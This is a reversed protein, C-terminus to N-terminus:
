SEVELHKLKDFVMLAQTYAEVGDLTSDKISQLPFYLSGLRYQFETVDWSPTVFSDLDINAGNFLSVAWAINAQTVAKRIQTNISTASNVADIATFVRKFAYALGGAASQENITKQVDDTMTISDTMIALNSITYGTITASGAAVTSLLAVRFDEFVIELQLGSMIQPPVKLGRKIPSFFPAIRKLPIVYRKPTGSLDTVASGWGEIPGQRTLYANTNTYATNFASWVNANDLRDIEIGSRSKITISKIVNMASASGWGATPTGSSAKLGVSFTLYANGTDNFTTGSNVDMVATDGDNYTRQQFFLRNYSRAVALSLAQPQVYTLNNVLLDSSSEQSKGDDYVDSTQGGSQVKRAPMGYMSTHPCDTHFAKSFIVPPFEVKAQIALPPYTLNCYTLAVTSVRALRSLLISLTTRNALPHRYNMGLGKLAPRM